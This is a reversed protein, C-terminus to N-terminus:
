TTITNGREENINSFVSFIRNISPCHHVSHKRQSKVMLVPTPNRRLFDNSFNTVRELMKNMHWVKLQQSTKNDNKYMSKHQLFGSLTWQKPVINGFRFNTKAYIQAAGGTGMYDSSYRLQEVTLRRPPHRERHPALLFLATARLERLLM